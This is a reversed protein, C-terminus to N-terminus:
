SPHVHGHSFKQLETYKVDRVLGVSRGFIPVTRVQVIVSSRNAHDAEPPSQVGGAPRTARTRGPLRAGRAEPRPLGSATMRRCISPPTPGWAVQNPFSSAFCLCTVARARAHPAKTHKPSPYKPRVPVGGCATPASRNATPPAPLVPPARVDMRGAGEQYKEGGVCWGKGRTGCLLRVWRYGYM